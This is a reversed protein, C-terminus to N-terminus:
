NPQSGAALHAAITDGNASNLEDLDNYAKAVSNTANSIETIRKVIAKLNAHEADVVAGHRQAADASATYVGFAEAPVQKADGVSTEVAQLETAMEDLFKAFARIEGPDVTVNSTVPRTSSGGGGDRMM